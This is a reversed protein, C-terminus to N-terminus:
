IVLLYPLIPRFSIFPLLAQVSDSIGLNASFNPEADPFILMSGDAGGGPFVKGDEKLKQSLAIADDVFIECLTIMNNILISVSHSVSLKLHMKMANM